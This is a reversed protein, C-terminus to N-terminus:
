EQLVIGGDLSKGELKIPKPKAPIMFHVSEAIAVVGRKGVPAVLHLKRSQQNAPDYLRCKESNQRCGEKGCTSCEMKQHFSM